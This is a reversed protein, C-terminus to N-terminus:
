VAPQSQFELTFTTDAGLNVEYKNTIIAQNFTRRLTKGEANTGTVTVVNRNRNAKWQRALKISDPDPFMDFKVKSFNSEVDETVVQVVSGGGVSGARVKQEGLGEDYMVSNPVIVVPENNVTVQPNAIPMM